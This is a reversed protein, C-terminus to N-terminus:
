WPARPVCAAAVVASAGALLLVASYGLLMAAPAAVAVAVFASSAGISWCWPVLPQSEAGVLRTGLSLLSGGLLGVPMGLVVLAVIFRTAFPLM